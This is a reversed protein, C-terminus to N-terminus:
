DRVWGHLEKPLSRWDVDSVDVAAASSTIWFLIRANRRLRSQDILAAFAKAGYTADLAVAKHARLRETAQAGARTKLAYGVGLYNGLVVLREPRPDVLPFAPDLEHLFRSTDVAARRLATARSTDPNSARVAVVRTRLGAAALGVALGAASGMTGMAIYIEDPEPLERARVQEALEFGANVFGVNGLASSGGLPITVVRLDAAMLAQMEAEAKHRSAAIRIEAGLRYDSLLNQHVTKSKPEPLLLLAVRFGSKAGFLATALAHNSGVGGSTVLTRAGLARAEGLLLELKRPKSGGYLPHSLDDRKLWLGSLGLERGLYTVTEVPTPGALLALRPLRLALTPHARFLPFDQETTKISEAAVQKSCVCALAACCFARRSLQSNPRRLYLAETM